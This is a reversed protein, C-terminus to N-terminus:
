SRACSPSAQLRALSRSTRPRPARPPPPRGPARMRRLWALPQRSSPVLLYEVAARATPPVIPKASHFFSPASLKNLMRSPPFTTNVGARLTARASVQSACPRSRTSTRSNSTPPSSAPGTNM